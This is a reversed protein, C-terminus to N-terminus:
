SVSFSSSSVPLDGHEAARGRSAWSDEPVEREDGYGPIGGSELGGQTWAGQGEEQRCLGM